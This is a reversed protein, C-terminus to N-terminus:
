KFCTEFAFDVLHICLYWVLRSSRGGGWFSFSGTNYSGKPFQSVNTPSPSLLPPPSLTKLDYSHIHGKWNHGNDRTQVKRHYPIYLFWKIKKKLVEISDSLSPFYFPPFILRLFALYIKDSKKINWKSTIHLHNTEM